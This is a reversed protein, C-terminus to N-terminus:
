FELALSVGGTIAQPPAAPAPLSLQTDVWVGLWFPGAIRREATVGLQLVPTVAPLNLRAGAGARIGIHWQAKYGDVSKLKDVFVTKEVIKEVVTAQSSATEQSSSENIKTKDTETIKTTETGDPAKIIEVVKVVDRTEGKVYVKKEVEVFVTKVVEKEVEVTETKTVVKVSPTVSYRGLAFAAAHAVILAVGIAIRKKNEPSVNM